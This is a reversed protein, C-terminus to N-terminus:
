FLNSSNGGLHCQKWWVSGEVHAQAGMAVGGLRGVRINCNTKMPAYRVATTELLRTPWLM